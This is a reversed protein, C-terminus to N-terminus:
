ILNQADRLVLLYIMTYRQFQMKINRKTHSASFLFLYVPKRNETKTSWTKMRRARRAFSRVGSLLTEERFM